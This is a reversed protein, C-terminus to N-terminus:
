NKDKFSNVYDEWERVANFMSKYINEYNEAISDIKNNILFIEIIKDYTTAYVGPIAAKTDKLATYLTSITVLKIAIMPPLSKSFFKAATLDLPKISKPINEGEYIGLMSPLGYSLLENLFQDNFGFNKSITIASTYDKLEKLKQFVYTYNDIEVNKIDIKPISMNIFDNKAKKYDYKESIRDLSVFLFAQLLLFRVMIDMLYDPNMLVGLLITKIIQTVTKGKYKDMLEKLIKESEDNLIITKNENKSNEKIIDMLGIKEFITQVMGLAKNISEIKEYDNQFMLDLDNKRKKWAYNIILNINEKEDFKQPFFSGIKLYESLRLINNYESRTFRVSRKM